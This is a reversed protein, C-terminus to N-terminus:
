AQRRALEERAVKFMLDIDPQGLELGTFLRFQRAAQYVLMDLGSIATCGAKKANKLFETEEPSYVVDFAVGYNRLQQMTAVSESSNTGADTANILLDAKSNGLESLSKYQASKYKDTVARTRENLERTFITLNGGRARVAYTIAKGVGGAGILHVTKDRLLGLQKEAPILFGVLDTNYGIFTGGENVVCSVAGIDGAKEDTRDLHPIIAEKDPKTVSIGSVNEERARKMVKVLDREPVRLVECKADIGRSSFLANYIIPSLSHDIPDGVTWYTKQM